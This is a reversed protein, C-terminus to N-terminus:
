SEYSEEELYTSRDDFIQGTINNIRIHSLTDIDTPTLNGGRFVITGDAKIESVVGIRDFFSDISNRKM